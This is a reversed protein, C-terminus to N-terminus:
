GHRTGIPQQAAPALPLQVRLRAGGLDPSADARIEGGLGQCIERSITLGLGLGHPKRSAASTSRVAAQDPDLGPGDDEVALILYAGEPDLGTTIRINGGGELADAANNILNLLVQRISDVPLTATPVASGTLTLDIQRHALQRAMLAAVDRILACVDVVALGVGMPRALGLTTAVVLELRDIEKLLRAITEWGAAIDRSAQGGGPSRRAAADLTEGLLELQLRIATLPNRIEHAMRASLEGLASLRSRRTAEAQYDSLGPWCCPEASRLHGWCPPSAARPQMSKAWRPAPPWRPM